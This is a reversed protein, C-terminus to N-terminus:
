DSAPASCFIGSQRLTGQRARWVWQMQVRRGCSVGASPTASHGPAVSSDSWLTLTTALPVWPLSLSLMPTVLLYLPTVWKRVSEREREREWEAKQILELFLSSLWIRGHNLMVFPDSSRRSVSNLCASPSIMSQWDQQRQECGGERGSREERGEGQDWKERLTERRSEFWRFFWRAVLRIELKHKASVQTKRWEPIIGLSLTM